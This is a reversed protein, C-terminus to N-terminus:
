KQPVTLEKQNYDMLAYGNTHQCIKKGVANQPTLKPLERVEQLQAIQGQELGQWRAVL